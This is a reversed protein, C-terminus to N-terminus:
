EHGLVKLMQDCWERADENKGYESSRHNGGYIWVEVTKHSGHVSDGNVQVYAESGSAPSVRVRPTKEIFAVRDAVKEPDGGKYIRMACCDEEDMIWDSLTEFKMEM